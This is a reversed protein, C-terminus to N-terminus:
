LVETLKNVMLGWARTARDAYEAWERSLSHTLKLVCGEPTPTIDISVRSDRPDSQGLIGWSFSLRRPADIEYYYGIHDIIEGAREVKFSFQGGVKPDVKLHIVTEDRLDGGMMFRGIMEPDLWAAFVKDASVAFAKEVTGAVTNFDHDTLNAKYKAEVAEFETWFGRPKRDGLVDELLSLHVHWGGLYNIVTDRKFVPNRHTLRLLVKDGVESLEITVFGVLHAPKDGEPWTFVIRHPPSVERVEVDFSVPERMAAFRDPAVEGSLQTHNFTMKAMGTTHMDGAMIWKARKDGDAVFAWVRDIPGPLLREFVLTGDEYLQGEPNPNMEPKM